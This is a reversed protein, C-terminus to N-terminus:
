NSVNLLTWRRRAKLRKQSAQCESIPHITPGSCNSPYLSIYQILKSPLSRSSRTLKPPFGWSFNSSRAIRQETCKLSRRCKYSTRRAIHQFPCFRSCRRPSRSPMYLLKRSFSYPRTLQRGRENSARWSELFGAPSDPSDERPSLVCDM